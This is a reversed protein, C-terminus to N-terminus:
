IMMFSAPSTDNPAMDMQGTAHTSSHANNNTNVSNVNVSAAVTAGNAAVLNAQVNRFIALCRAPVCHAAAAHELAAEAKALLLRTDMFPTQGPHGHKPLFKALAPTVLALIMTLAAGWLMHMEFWDLPVNSGGGDGHGASSGDPLPSSQMANAVNREAEHELIMLAASQLCRHCADYVWFPRSESSDPSRPSTTSTPTDGSTGPPMNHGNQGNPQSSDMAEVSEHAIYYLVPRCMLFELMYYKKRLYPFHDLEPPTRPITLAGGLDRPFHCDLPLHDDFWRTLESKLESLAVSLLSPQSYAQAITYLRSLVRNQIATLALTAEALREARKKQAIEAVSLNMYGTEVERLTLTKTSSPLVHALLSFAAESPLGDVTLLIDSEVLYHLQLCDEFREKWSPDHVQRRGSRGLRDGAAQILKLAGVPCAARTMFLHAALVLFPVSEDDDPAFFLEGARACAARLVADALVGGRTTLALAMALLLQCSCNSLQLTPANSSLSVLPISTLITTHRQLLQGLLYDLGRNYDHMTAIAIQVTAVDIETVVNHSPSSSPAVGGTETDEVYRLLSGGDFLTVAMNIRPWYHLMKHSAATHFLPTQSFASSPVLSPLSITNSSSNYEESGFSWASPRSPTTKNQAMSELRLEMRDLREMMMVTQQENLTNERYFCDSGTSRCYSCAPREGDCRTKRGRCTNCATSAKSRRAAAM